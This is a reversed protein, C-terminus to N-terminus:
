GCRFSGWLTQGRRSEASRANILGDRLFEANREEDEVQNLASEACKDVPDLRCLGPSWELVIDM